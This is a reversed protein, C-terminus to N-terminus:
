KKKIIINFLDRFHEAEKPDVDKDHIYLRIKKIVKKKFIEIDSQTLKMFVNNEFGSSYDVDVVESPRSWKTGDSFLIIVGKGLYIGSSKISTSFYYTSKGKDINKLIYGLKSLRPSNIDIEGTFEDVERNIENE